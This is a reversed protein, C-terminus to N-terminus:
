RRILAEGALLRRRLENLYRLTETRTLNKVIFEQTDSHTRPKKPPAVQKRDAILEILRDREAQSLNELIFDIFQNVPADSGSV